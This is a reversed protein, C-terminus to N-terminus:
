QGLLWTTATYFGLLLFFIGPIRYVLFANDAIHAFRAGLKNVTLLLCFTGTSIGCLYLWFHSGQLSIWGNAQLYATVTLWFPITLPNLLGLIVGRKFGNRGKLSLKRTLISNESKKTLLNIFGLLIMAAATILQFYQTFLPKESLFLQFRVTVGAYAFETLAAALAFFFAARKQQQISLQMSTINITGPPISGLYSVVFGITLVQLM